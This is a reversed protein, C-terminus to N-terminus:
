NFFNTLPSKFKKVANKCIQRDFWLTGLWLGPLLDWGRRVCVCMSLCVSSTYSFSSTGPFLHGGLFPGLALFRGESLWSSLRVTTILCWCVWPSCSCCKRHPLHFCFASQYSHRRWEPVARSWCLWHKFFWSCSSSQLSPSAVGGGRWGELGRQGRVTQPADQLCPKGTVQTLCPQRGWTVGLGRLTNVPATKAPKLIYALM